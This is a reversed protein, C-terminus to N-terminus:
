FSKLFFDNALLHKGFFNTIFAYPQKLDNCKELHRGNNKGWLVQHTDPLYGEPMLPINKILFLSVSKVDRLITPNLHRNRSIHGTQKAIRPYPPTPPSLHTSSARGGARGGEAIAKECKCCNDHSESHHVHHVVGGYRDERRRRRRRGGRRRHFCIHLLLHQLLLQM